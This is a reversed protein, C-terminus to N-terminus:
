ARTRQQGNKIDSWAPRPLEIRRCGMGPAEDIVAVPELEVVREQTLRPNRYRAIIWGSGRTTIRAPRKHKALVAYAFPIRDTRHYIPTGEVNM